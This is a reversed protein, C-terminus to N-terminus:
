SLHSHCVQPTSVFALAQFAVSPVHTTSIMAKNEKRLAFKDKEFCAETQVSVIWIWFPTLWVKRIMETCFGNFRQFDDM